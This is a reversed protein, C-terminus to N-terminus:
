AAQPATGAQQQSNIGTAPQQHRLVPASMLRVPLLCPPLRGALPWPRHGQQQQWHSLLAVCLLLHQHQQHGALSTAHCLLSTAHRLLYTVARTALLCSAQSTVQQHSLLLVPSGSSHIRHPHTHTHTPSDPTNQKRLPRVHVPLVHLADQSTEFATSDCAGVWECCPLLLPVTRCAHM